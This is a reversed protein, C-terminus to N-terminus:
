FAREVRNRVDNAAYVCDGFRRMWALEADDMPGKELAALAHRLEAEDKPGSLCTSVGPNSLVFRYCDGATPVPVDPPLGRPAKLLTGWRTATFAVIGSARPPPPLQPFVEREAGRHCANYRVHIVDFPSDGALEAALPRHHTSIALHRVLGKERCAVAADVMRRSPRKNWWGLLLVDAHDTGLRRLACALSPRLLSALRSYSQVVIKMRDRFGRGLLNKVGRGFSKTRMSGWYVYDVGAEVAAEVGAEGLGYSAAIGLRFVPLGTRGLVGRTFTTTAKM